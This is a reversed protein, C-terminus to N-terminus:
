SNTSWIAIIKSTLINTTEVVRGEPENHPVLRDLEVEIRSFGIRFNRSLSEVTDLIEMSM